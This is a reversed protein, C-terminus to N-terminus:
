RISPVTMLAWGSIKIKRIMNSEVCIWYDMQDKLISEIWNKAWIVRQSNSRMYLLFHAAVPSSHVFRISINQVMMLWAVLVMHWAIHIIRRISQKVQRLTLRIFWNSEMVSQHLFNEMLMNWVLVMVEQLLFSHVCYKEPQTWKWSAVEPVVRLPIWAICMSFEKQEIWRSIPSYVIEKVWRSKRKLLLHKQM